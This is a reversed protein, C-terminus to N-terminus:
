SLASKLVCLIKLAMVKGTTRVKVKSAPVERILLRYCCFWLISNNENREGCRCLPGTYQKQWAVETSAIGWHTDHLTWNNWELTLFRMVGARGGWSDFQKVGAGEFSRNNWESTKLLGMEWNVTRTCDWRKMWKGELKQWEHKSIWPEWHKRNANEVTGNRWEQVKSPRM